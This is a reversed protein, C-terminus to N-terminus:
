LGVWGGVGSTRGGREGRGAVLNVTLAFQIRSYKAFGLAIFQSCHPLSPYLSLIYSWEAYLEEGKWSTHRLRSSKQQIANVLVRVNYYQGVVHLFYTICIYIYIYLM